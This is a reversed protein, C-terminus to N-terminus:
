QILFNKGNWHILVPAKSSRLETIGPFAERLQEFGADGESMEVVEERPHSACEADIWYGGVLYFIRGGIQRRANVKWKSEAEPEEIKAAARDGAQTSESKSGQATKLAPSPQDQLRRVASADALNSVFQQSFFALVTEPSELTKAQFATQSTIGRGAADVGRIDPRPAIGALGARAEKQSETPQGETAPLVPGPQAPALATQSTVKESALEDRTKEARAGTGTLRKSAPIGDKSGASSMQPKPSADQKLGSVAPSLDEPRVPDVAPQADGSASPRYEAIEADKRPAKMQHFVLVGIALVVLAVVSRAFWFLFSSHARGASVAASTEIEDVSALKMALALVRRCQPCSSAHGEYDARQTPDLRSELYMTVINKDPCDRSDETVRGALAKRLASDILSDRKPQMM